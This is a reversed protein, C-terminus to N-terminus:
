NDPRRYAEAGPGRNGKEYAIPQPNIYGPRPCVSPRHPLPQYYPKRRSPSNRCSLHGPLRAGVAPGRNRAAVEKSRLRKLFRSNRFRKPQPLEEARESPTTQRGGPRLESALRFFQRLKFTLFLRNKFHSASFPLPGDTGAPLHPYM